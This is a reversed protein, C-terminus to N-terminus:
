NAGAIAGLVALIILIGIPVLCMLCGAGILGCGIDTAKNSM